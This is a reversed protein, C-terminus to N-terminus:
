FAAKPWIAIMGGPISMVTVMIISLKKAQRFRCGTDSVNFVYLLM